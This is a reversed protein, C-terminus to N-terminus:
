RRFLWDWLGSLEDQSYLLSDETKGNPGWSQVVITEQAGIFLALTKPQRYWEIIIRGEGDASIDPRFGSQFLQPHLAILLKASRVADPDPSASGYGDWNGPLNGVTDIEVQINKQLASNVSQSRDRILRYRSQLSPPFTAPVRNTNHQANHQLTM